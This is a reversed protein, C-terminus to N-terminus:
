ISWGAIAKDLDGNHEKVAQAFQSRFTSGLNVGDLVVNLLLWNADTKRRGMTYAVKKNTGDAAQVKQLVTVKGFEPVANKSPLVEVSLDNFKAMGKAYTEVLGKKFVAVFAQQQEDSATKWYSGMVSRAIFKFDVVPELLTQVEDFYKQPNNEYTAQNAKVVKMLQETTTNVLDHPGLVDENVAQASALASLVWSFLFLISIQTFKTKPVNM